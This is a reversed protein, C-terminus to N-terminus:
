LLRIEDGGDLVMGLTSGSDWNVHVTGLSDVGIVTGHTGPVLQTNEDSTRILEVRDNRKYNEHVQM